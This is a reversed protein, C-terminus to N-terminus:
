LQTIKLYNYLYGIILPDFNNLSKRIELVREPFEPLPAPMIKQEDTGLRITPDTKISYSVTLLSQLIALTAEISGAGYIISGVYREQIESILKMMKVLNLQVNVSSNDICGDIIGEELSRVVIKNARYSLSYPSNRDIM